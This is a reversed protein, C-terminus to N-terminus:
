ENGYLPGKHQQQTNLPILGNMHPTFIEIIDQYQNFIGTIKNEFEVDLNDNEEILM